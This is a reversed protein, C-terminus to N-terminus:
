KKVNKHRGPVRKRGYEAEKDPKGQMIEALEDECIPCLDYETGTKKSILTDTARNMHKECFRAM